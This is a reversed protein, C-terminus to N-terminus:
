ALVPIDHFRKMFIDSLDAEKLIDKIRKSAGVKKLCFASFKVSGISAFRM